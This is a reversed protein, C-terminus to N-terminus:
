LHVLIPKLLFHASLKLKGTLWLGFQGRLLALLSCVFHFELSQVIGVEVFGLALADHSFGGDLLLSILSDLHVRLVELIHGDEFLGRSGLALIQVIVGGDVRRLEHAFEHFLHLVGVNGSVLQGMELVDYRLIHVFGKTPFQLPPVDFVPVLVFRGGNVLLQILLFGQEFHLGLQDEIMRPPLLVLRCIGKSSRHVIELHHLLPLLDIFILVLITGLIGSHFLRGGSILLLLLFDTRFIFM